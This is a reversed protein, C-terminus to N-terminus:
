RASPREAKQWREGLGVPDPALAVIKHFLREFDEHRLDAIPDENGAFAAELAGWDDLTFFTEALPLLDREERRMHDWHFRAYRNVQAGFEEGGDPWAQDYALLAHELDRIMRAGSAHEARLAEILPRSRACRLELRTFLVGEEKPHHMREPFADIYYIMARFVEFDPHAKAARAMKVLEILGSLVASISRHEDIIIRIAKNM